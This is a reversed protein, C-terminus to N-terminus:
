RNWSSLRTLKYGPEIKMAMKQEGSRRGKIVHILLEDKMLGDVRERHIKIAVDAANYFESGWNFPNGYEADYENNAASQNIQSMIFVACDYDISIRKIAEKLAPMKRDMRAEGNISCEQIYDIFVVDPKVREIEKRIEDMDIAQGKIYFQKSKELMSIKLYEDRVEKAYAEMDNMLQKEWIGVRMCALRIIYESRKLETSFVAVKVAQESKLMSDVLNIAFYSKGMASFGGVLYIQGKKIKGLHEDLLDIGFPIGFVNGRREKELEASALSAAEAFTVMANENSM